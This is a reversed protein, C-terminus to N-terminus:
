RERVLRLTEARAGIRLRAYYVGPPLNQASWAIAHRGAPLSSALATTVRRGTPSFVEIVAHGAEPLDIAFRADGRVPQSTTLAFGLATPQQPPASVSALSRRWLGDARAAYLVDGHTAIHIVPTGPFSEFLEWTNGGDHSV